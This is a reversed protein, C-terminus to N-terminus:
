TGICMTMTVAKFGLGGTVDKEAYAVLFLGGNASLDPM